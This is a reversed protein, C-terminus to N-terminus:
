GDDGSQSAIVSDDDNQDALDTSSSGAGFPLIAVSFPLRIVSDPGGRGPGKRRLPGFAVRHAIGPMASAIVLQKPRWAPTVLEDCQPSSRLHTTRWETVALKFVPQFTGPLILLCSYTLQARFVIHLQDIGHCLKGAPTSGVVRLFNVVRGFREESNSTPSSFYASICDGPQFVAGYVTAKQFVEVSVSDMRRLADSEVSDSSLLREFFEM